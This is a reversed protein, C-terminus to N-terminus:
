TLPFCGRSFAHAKLLIRRSKNRPSKVTHRFDSPTEGVHKPVTELFTRHRADQLTDYNDEGYWKPWYRLLVIHERHDRAGACQRRTQSNLTSISSFVCSVPFVHAVEKDALIGELLLM